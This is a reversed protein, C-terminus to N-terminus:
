AISLLLWTKDVDLRHFRGQDTYSSSEPCQPGIDFAHWCSVNISHNTANTVDCRFRYWARRCISHQMTRLILHCSSQFHQYDRRGEHKTLGKADPPVFQLAGSSICSTWRDRCAQTVELRSHRACKTCQSNTPEPHHTM